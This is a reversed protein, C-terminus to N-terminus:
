AQRRRAISSIVALGALLMACTGPEPVANVSLNIDDIYVRAQGNDSISGDSNVVIGTAGTALTMELFAAKTNVPIVVGSRTIQTWSSANIVGQFSTNVVPNLINGTADLYRLSFNVNGTVSANGLAWFTLTPSTGWNSPDLEAMLGDDVSNQVLGSGGFGPDVVALLASKTGTRAFATSVNGATPGSVGRWGQAIQGGVSPSTEFSGNAFANIVLAHAATSGLTLVVASVLSISKISM